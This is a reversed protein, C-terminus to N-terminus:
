FTFTTTSTTTKGFNNIDLLLFNPLLEYFAVTKNLTRHLLQVQYIKNLCADM